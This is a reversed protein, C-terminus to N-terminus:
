LDRYVEKRHVVRIIIIILEGNNISYVIRYDACRVRYMNGTGTLKSVGDPYPNKILAQIKKAVVIRIRTPLKRIQKEVPKRFLLNYM